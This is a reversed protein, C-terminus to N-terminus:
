RPAHVWESFETMRRPTEDERCLASAKELVDDVLVDALAGDCRNV